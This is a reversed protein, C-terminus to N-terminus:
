KKPKPLPRVGGEGENYQGDTLQKLNSGDPDMSFIAWNGGEVPNAFIIKAGDVSWRPRIQPSPAALTTLQKFNRGTSSMSWIQYKDTKNGSADRNSLFVISKGDPSWDPFKSESRGRTIQTQASGDFGMTYVQLDASTRNANFAVKRSDPAWAVDADFATNTTLRRQNSGDANMRYIELAVGKNRDSAFMIYKGDPSWSPGFNKGQGQKEFTLQRAESTVLDVVYIQSGGDLNAVYAIKTGDPAPSVNFTDAGLATLQQMDTGDITMTYIFSQGGRNSTFILREGALATTTATAPIATATPPLSLTATPPPTPTATDTPAVTLAFQAHATATAAVLTSVKENTALISKVTASVIAEVTENLRPTPTESGTSDRLPVAAGAVATPLLGIVIGFALVFAGILLM